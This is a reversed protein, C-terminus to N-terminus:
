RLRLHASASVTFNRSAQKALRRRRIGLVFAAILMAGAAGPGGSSACGCPKTDPAGSGSGSEDDAGTGTDAFAADEGDCDQDVGDQPVDDGGPFSTADADDCDDRTAAPIFGDPQDCAVLTSDRDSYGDGDIDAYWTKADAADEDIILDCDDDIHNCVEVANDNVSSSADDCDYCAGFGDQDADVTGSSGDCNYDVSDACDEEPAGPYRAPDDDACDAGMALAAATAEGAADCLSDDSSVITAVGDAPYSDSDADVFCLETGDCDQDLEDGVIEVAGPSVAADADDCDAPGGAPVELTGDCSINVTAFTTEPDLRYGDDDGDIYCLEEGDCDQDVGDGPLETADSNVASATDNCDNCATFGDGDFDEYAV